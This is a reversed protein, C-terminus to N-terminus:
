ENGPQGNSDETLVAKKPRGRRRKAPTEVKKENVNPVRVVAGCKSYIQKRLNHPSKRTSEFFKRRELVTPGSTTLDRSDIDTDVDTYDGDSDPVLNNRKERATEVNLVDDLGPVLNNRKESATEVNLAGDLDNERKEENDHDSDNTIACASNKLTDKKKM